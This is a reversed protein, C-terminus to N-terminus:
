SQKPSGFGGGDDNGWGSAAPEVDGGADNGWAPAEQKPSNKSWEAGGWGVQDEDGKNEERPPGGRGRGRGMKKVEPCDKRM